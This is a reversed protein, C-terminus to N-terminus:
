DLWPSAPSWVPEGDYGEHQSLNTIAGTALEVVRIESNGTEDSRFALYRGDPSWSPEDEGVENHTWRRVDTGDWRMTYIEHQGPTDRESAFAIFEGSPSWSAYADNGASDTLRVAAHTAFDYRYLEPNGDRESVFLLQNGDPSWQPRYDLGPAPAIRTEGGGGSRCIYLDQEGDIERVYAYYSGAPSLQPFDGAAKEAIREALAVRRVDSGDANMEFRAWGEVDPDRQSYFAMREGGAIWRPFHDGAEHETLNQLDTGDPRISYIEWNGSRNSIFAIRSAAGADAPREAGRWFTWPNQRPSFEGDENRGQWDFVFSDEGLRRFELRAPAVEFVDGNFSVHDFYAGAAHARGVFESRHGARHYETRKWTGDDLRHLVARSIERNIEDTFMSATVLQGGLEPRIEMTVTLGDIEAHWRGFLFDLEGAPASAPALLALALAGFSLTARRYSSSIM